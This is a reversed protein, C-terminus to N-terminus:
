GVINKGENKDEDGNKRLFAKLWSLRCKEKIILDKIKDSNDLGEYSYLWGPM